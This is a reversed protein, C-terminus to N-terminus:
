DQNRQNRRRVLFEYDTDIGLYLKQYIRGFVKVGKENDWIDKEKIEPICRGYTHGSILAFLLNCINM